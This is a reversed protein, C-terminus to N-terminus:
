RTAEETRRGDRRRLALPFARRGLNGAFVVAGAAYLSGAARVISADAVLLGVLVGGFGSLLLAFSVWAFRKDYMQHLMPAGRKASGSRVYQLRSLVPLILYSKGIVAFGFWGSVAAYGYAVVWSARALHGSALGIGLAAAVTLSALSVLTHWQEISLKPQRRSHLVMLLDLVHLLASVALVAAFAVVLTSGRTILLSAALGLLGINWVVLNVLPLARKRYPAGSFLETLRYSVGMLTLGLWGALGAHVHAALMRNTIAFWGFQWNLAYVGGFGITIALWVLAALVYFAMPHWNRVSPYSRLMQSVFHVLGGVILVGFIAVGPAWIVYFSPLFGAIGATLV